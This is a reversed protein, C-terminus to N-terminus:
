SERRGCLAGGESTWNWGLSLGHQLDCAGYVRSREGGINLVNNMKRLENNNNVEIALAAMLQKVLPLPEPESYDDRDFAASM